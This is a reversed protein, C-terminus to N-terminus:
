CFCVICCCTFFFCIQMQQLQLLLCHQDFEIYAPAECSEPLYLGSLVVVELLEASDGSTLLVILYADLKLFSENTRPFCCAWFSVRKLCQNTLVLAAVPKKAFIVINM